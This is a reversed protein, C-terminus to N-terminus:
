LEAWNAHQSLTYVELKLQVTPHRDVDLKLPGWLLKHPMAELAQLYALLDIYSGEVSLEVAHRYVGAQGRQASLTGVASSTATNAAPQPSAPSSPAAPADPTLRTLGLSQLSRLRLGHQRNLVEQLLPVMQQPTVLAPLGPAANAPGAAVRGLERRLRDIESRTQQQRAQQVALLRDADANLTDLALRASRQQDQLVQWQQWRGELWTLDLLGLVLLSAALTVLVRERQPREDFQRNARAWGRTLALPLLPRLTQMM